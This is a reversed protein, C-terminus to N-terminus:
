HRCALLARGDYVGQLVVEDGVEQTHCATEEKDREDFGTVQQAVECGLDPGLLTGTKRTGNPRLSSGLDGIRGEHREIGVSAPITPDVEVGAHGYCVPVLDGAGRTPM